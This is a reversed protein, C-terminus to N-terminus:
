ASIKIKNQNQYAFKYVNFAEYRPLIKTSAKDYLLGNANVGLKKDKYYYTPLINKERDEAMDRRFKRVYLYYRNQSEDINKPKNVKSEKLLEKIEKLEELIDNAWKPKDEAEGSFM